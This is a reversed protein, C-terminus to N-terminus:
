IIYNRKRAEANLWNKFKRMDDIRKWSFMLVDYEESYKIKDPHFREILLQVYEAPSINLMRAPVWWLARVSCLDSVDNCSWAGAEGWESYRLLKAPRQM